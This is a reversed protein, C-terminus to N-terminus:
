RALCRAPSLEALTLKDALSKDGQLLGDPFAYLFLLLGGSPRSTM